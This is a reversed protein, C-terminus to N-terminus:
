EYKHQMVNAGNSSDLKFVTVPYNSSAFYVSLEKADISLSNRSFGYNYFWKWYQTGSLNIKMVVM